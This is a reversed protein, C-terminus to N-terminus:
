WVRDDHGVDRLAVARRCCCCGRWQTAAPATRASRPAGVERQARPRTIVNLALASTTGSGIPRATSPTPQEPEAVDCEGASRAAARSRRPHPTGCSSIALVGVPSALRRGPANSRRITRSPVASVVRHVVGWMGQDSSSRSVSRRSRSFPSLMRWHASMSPRENWLTCRAIRRRPMWLGAAVAVLLSTWLWRAAHPQYRQRWSGRQPMLSQAVCCVAGDIWLVLRLRESAEALVGVVCIRAIDILQM